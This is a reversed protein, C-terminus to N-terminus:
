IETYIIAVAGTGTVTYYLGASLPIVTDGPLMFSPSQVEDSAALRAIETGAADGGAWV